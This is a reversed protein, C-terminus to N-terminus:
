TNERRPASKVAAAFGADFTMLDELSDLSIGRREHASRWLLSSLQYAIWAFRGGPYVGRLLEERGAAALWRGYTVLVSEYSSAGADCAQDVGDIKLYKRGELYDVEICFSRGAAVGEVIRRKTLEAGRKFNTHGEIEAGGLRMAYDCRGDVAYAYAEPNPPDYPESDAEAAVGDAFVAELGGRLRGLLYAAFALSHITEQFEIPVMKKLNRPNGRAERDKSRQLFMSTIRADPLSSLHDLIRETLPDFLEPFDYLLVAGSEEAAKAIRACDGPREPSAMPKEDLIHIPERRAREFLLDEGRRRQEPHLALHFLDAPLRYFIEEDEVRELRALDVDGPAQGPDHVYAHIGRALAADLFRRGIYGWAGAIAISEPWRKGRSEADISM